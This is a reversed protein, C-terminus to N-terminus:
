QYSVPTYPSRRHWSSGPGFPLLLSITSRNPRWKAPAKCIVKEPKNKCDPQWSSQAAGSGAASKAFLGCGDARYAIFLLLRRNGSLPQLRNPASTM